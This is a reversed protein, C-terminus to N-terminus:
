EESEAIWLLAIAALTALIAGILTWLSQLITM